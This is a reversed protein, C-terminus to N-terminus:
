CNQIYAQKKEYDEATVGMVYPVRAMTVAVFNRSDLDTMDRRVGKRVKSGGM